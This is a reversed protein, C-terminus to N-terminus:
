HISKLFESRFVALANRLNQQLECCEVSQTRSLRRYRPDLDFVRLRRSCRSHNVPRHPVSLAATMADAPEKKISVLILLSVPQSGGRQFGALQVHQQRHLQSSSPVTNSASGTTAPAGTGGVKLRVTGDAARCHTANTIVPAVTAGPASAPPPPTTQASAAIPWCRDTLMKRRRQTPRGPTLAEEKGNRLKRAFLGGM